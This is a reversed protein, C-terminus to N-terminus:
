HIKHKYVIVFYSVTVLRTPQTTSGGVNNNVVPRHVINPNPGCPGVVRMPVTQTQPRVIAM